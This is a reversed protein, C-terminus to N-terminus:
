DLHATLLPPEDRIDGLDHGAIQTAMRAYLRHAVWTELAVWQERPGGAGQNPSKPRDDEIAHRTRPVPEHALRAVHSLAYQLEFTLQSGFADSSDFKQSCRAGM